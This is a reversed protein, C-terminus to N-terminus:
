EGLTLGDSGARIGWTYIREIKFSEKAGFVKVKLKAVYVGVGVKRGNDARMNWRLYLKRPNEFCNNGFSKDDCRITSSAHAVYGGLNTFVDLEWKLGINELDLEAGGASDGKMITSFGVDLLVGLSKKMEGDMKVDPEVFRETFAAKDALLVARELTALSTVKTIVRPDGEVMVSPADERVGNGELDTFSNTFNSFKMSDAPNMRDELAVGNELFIKLSKGDKSWSHSSLNYHGWSGDVLFALDNESLNLSSTDVPESFKVVLEDPVAKQFSEPQLFTGSIVPPMRDHMGLRTTVISDAHGAISITNTVETFGYKENMVANTSDINTLMTKIDYKSDSLDFGIVSGDESLSIVGEELLSDLSRFEYKRVESKSDLWFLSITMTKLDDKTLPNQFGVSASDMTGDGDRDYFGNNEDTAYVGGANRVPVERNKGTKNGDAAQIGGKESICIMDGVHVVGTDVSFRWEDGNKVIASEEIEKGNLIFGKGENWSSDIDKNFKVILVDTDEEGYIISATQIVAGIRDKLSTQLTDDIGTYQSKVAVQLTGKANNGSASLSLQDFSMEKELKCNENKGETCSNWQGRKDETPWSYAFDTLVVSDRDGSFWASIKDGVGDGDTDLVIASDLHPLNRDNITLTGPFTENIYFIADGDKDYGEPYGSLKFAEGKDTRGTDKAVVTFGVVGQNEAAFDLQVGYHEIEPLKEGALSHFELNKGAGETSFYFTKVITSDTVGSDPGITIFARAFLKTSDGVDLNLDSASTVVSDCSADWCYQIGPAYFNYVAVLSPESNKDVSTGIAINYVAYDASIGFWRFGSDLSNVKQLNETLVTDPDGAVKTKLSIKLSDNGAKPAYVYFDTNKKSNTPLGKSDKEVKVGEDMTYLNFKRSVDLRIYKCLPNPSGSYHLCDIDEALAGTAVFLLSLMLIRCFCAFQLRMQPEVLFFPKLLM